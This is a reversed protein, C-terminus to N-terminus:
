ELDKTTMEVIKVADECPTSEIEIFWKNWMWLFYSRMRSHKIILNCCNLWKKVSEVTRKHNRSWKCNSGGGSTKFWEFDDMLTVILKKWVGTLTPIKVEEWSGCINKIADLITFEEWFSKLKSQGSEDSSDNDLAAKTKFFKNRLYYSKFNLNVGQGMPQLISTTSGPMYVVDIKNGMEMLAKPHGPLNDVLLLIKFPVKKGSCYTKVTLKFYENVINCVSPNDDLIKPENICSLWFAAAAALDHWGHGVRHSGMSPLGGPEETWPIRWSLTSSHPAM